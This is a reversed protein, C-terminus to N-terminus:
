RCCTPATWAGGASSPWTSCNSPWSCGRPERDREGPRGSGLRVTAFASEIVNTTRLHKWHEAPFDFFATLREWSAALAEVAKPYTAQHEAAFRTWAAECESRTEAYMMERLARKARAQLRQPLKDLVNVRKHCWCGQARTEPWV